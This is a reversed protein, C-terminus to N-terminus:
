LWVRQGHIELTDGDIVSAVGVFDAHAPAAPGTERMWGDHTRRRPKGFRSIAQIAIEPLGDAPRYIGATAM